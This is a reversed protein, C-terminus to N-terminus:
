TVRYTQHWAGYLRYQSRFMEFPMDHSTALRDAQGLNGGDPDLVSVYPIGSRLEIGHIVVFHAGDEIGDGNVDWVIRACVPRNAVDIEAQLADFPIQGDVFQFLSAGLADQLSM